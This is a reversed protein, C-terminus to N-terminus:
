ITEGNIMQQKYLEAYLGTAAILEDHSGQEIIHGKDMVVIIDADKVAAIRQSVIVTTKGATIQGINALLAAQTHYDLSSFVDDLLLISPEKILARAISVRQQQGGSLLRGKEGLETEYGASKADIAETVVALQAAASIQERPYERDFAINEGITQAFLTSAQPVYGISQRLSGLDISHIETGGIWIVGSPPDYLRLILKLLTSKGAGTRGVIGVIAGQPIVLTFDDIVPESDEQYSFTLNRFDLSTFHLLGGNEAMTTEYPAIAFIDGIRKLSAAGRELTNILYGLGMVPWIILGLYGIFAAFEGVTLTGDIMQRGGIYLAIAYCMLPAIHTVPVYAAQVKALHINAIVSASSVKEFREIAVKEAAFGKIVNIGAFIEQSFETLASFKEQVERFRHHVTKGMGTAAVLIIPLPLVSWFTLQWDISEAMIILSAAGMIIADVFLMCGLGVAMRVASIDNTALAMIKGPGQHDFFALPLRLAHDYLKERLFYELRRSSGMICERYVYRSIAIAATVLLINTIIRNISGGAVALDDIAQGILRPILVQLLDVVILFAVGIGYLLWYKCFFPTLIYLYRSM